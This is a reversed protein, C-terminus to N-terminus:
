RVRVEVLEEMLDSRYPPRRRVEECLQHVYHPDARRRYRAQAAACLSAVLPSDLLHYLERCLGPDDVLRQVLERDRRLHAVRIGESQLGGEMEDLLQVRNACYIYKRESRDHQVMKRIGHTKGLGTGGPVLKFGRQAQQILRSYYQTYLFQDSM